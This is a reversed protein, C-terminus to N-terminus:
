RHDAALSEESLDYAKIAILSLAMCFAPILAVTIYIGGIADASQTQAARDFGSASLVFGLIQAGVGSTIKETLSYSAAILGNRHEGSRRFDDHMVDQLMGNGMLLMGGSLFGFLIGRVIILAMPEGPEALWWGLTLVTYLITAIFYGARKGRTNALRTWFPMSVAWTLTTVLGYLGLTKADYGLAFRVFFFLSGAGVALGLLHLIKIALLMRYARGGIIARLQGLVPKHHQGQGHDPVGRLSIFCGLFAAFVIVAMVLGLTTYADGTGGMTGILYPALAVGFATGLAIAFSRVGVMNTRVAPQTSMEAPMSLYPVNFLTYGTAYLLLGAIAQVRGGEGAAFLLFMAAPTVAAAALLYPRRRGMPGKTRDTLWGMPLDTIVDYLKTLLVVTGALAPEFGVVTILYAMLLVNLTNHITALGVSGLGWGWIHTRTPEFSPSTSM